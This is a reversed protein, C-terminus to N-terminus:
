VINEKYSQQSGRFVHVPVPQCPSPVSPGQVSRPAVEVKRAGESGDSPTSSRSRVTGLAVVCGIRRIDVETTPM